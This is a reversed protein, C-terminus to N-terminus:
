IKLIITQFLIMIDNDSRFIIGYKEGAVLKFYLNLQAPNYNIIFYEHKNKMNDYDFQIDIEQSSINISFLILIKPVTNFQIDRSYIPISLYNHNFIRTAGSNICNSLYNIIGYTFVDIMYKIHYKDIEYNYKDYLIYSIKQYLNNIDKETKDFVNKSM